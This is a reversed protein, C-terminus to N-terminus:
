LFDKSDSLEFADTFFDDNSFNHENTEIEGSEFKQFEGYSYQVNDVRDQAEERSLGYTDQLHDSFNNQDGFKEGSFPCKYYFPHGNLSPENIDSTSDQIDDEYVDRALKRGESVGRQFEENGRFNLDDNNFGLAHGREYSDDSSSFLNGLFGFM